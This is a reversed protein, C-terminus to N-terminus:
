RLPWREKWKWSLRSLQMNLRSWLHLLKKVMKNPISKELLRTRQNKPDCLEFLTQSPREYTFLVDDCMRVCGQVWVKREPKLMSCWHRPRVTATMRGAGNMM